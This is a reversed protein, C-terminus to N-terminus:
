LLGDVLFVRANGLRQEALVTVGNVRPVEGPAVELAQGGLTTVAEGQRPQDLSWAGALLHRDLVDRLAERDHILADLPAGALPAFAADTPLFLTWQAPAPPGAGFSAARLLSTSFELSVPRGAASAARAGRLARAAALAEDYLSPASVGSAVSDRMASRPTAPPTDTAHAGEASLAQSTGLTGLSLGAGLLGATILTGKLLSM